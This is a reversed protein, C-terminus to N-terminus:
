DHLILCGTCSVLNIALTKIYNITKKNHNDFRKKGATSNLVSIGDASASSSDDTAAKDVKEM